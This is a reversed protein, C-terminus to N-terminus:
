EDSAQAGALRASDIEFYSTETPEPLSDFLTRLRPTLGELADRDLQEALKEFGGQVLLPALKKSLQEFVWESAEAPVVSDITTEKQNEGPAHYHPRNRFCDFRLLEAEDAGIPGFVQLTVGGDITEIERRCARFRLGAAQLERDVGKQIVLKTMEAM